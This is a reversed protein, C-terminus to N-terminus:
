VHQLRGFVTDLTKGNTSDDELIHSRMPWAAGCDASSLATLRIRLTTLRYGNWVYVQVRYKLSYRFKNM